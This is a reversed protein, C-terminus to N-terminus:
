QDKGRRIRVEGENSVSTGQGDQEGWWDLHDDGDRWDDYKGYYNSDSGLSRTWIPIACESTAAVKVRNSLNLRQFVKFTSNM